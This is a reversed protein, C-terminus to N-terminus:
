RGDGRGREARAPDEKERGNERSDQLPYVDRCGAKEFYEAFECIHYINSSYGSRLEMHTDDIYRAIRDRYEGSKTVIRIGDGDRVRFLEKYEPTVFRIGKEAAKIHRDLPERLYCYIYFNYEGRDPNLRMLYAYKETDGRFGYERGDRGFGSEPHAMCCGTLATRNRLMHGYREDFRLLNVVEDLEERFERTKLYVQQDDWSTVFGTGTSDMDGRLHGICGTQGTIQSSQTYTYLQEQKELVRMTLETM